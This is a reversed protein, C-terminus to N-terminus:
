DAPDEDIIENADERGYSRILKDIETIEEYPVAYLLSPYLILMSEDRELEGINEILNFRKLIRLINRFDTKNMRKTFWGIEEIEFHLEEVSIVINEHLSIEKAKQAYLKRLLLLVVSENLKLNLHNYHELSKLQVVKETPHVIVEYDTIAFYDGYLSTMREISYYDERDNDKQGCLFSSSLLKNAIRSFETRETETLHAYNKAFQQASRSKDMIEEGSVSSDLGTDM